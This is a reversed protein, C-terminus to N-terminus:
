VEEYEYVEKVVESKIKSLEKLIEERSMSKKIRERVKRYYVKFVKKRMAKSDDFGKNKIYTVLHFLERNVPNGLCEICITEGEIDQCIMCKTTVSSTIDLPTYVDEPKKGEVKEPEEKVGEEKKEEM